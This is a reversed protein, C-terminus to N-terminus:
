GLSSLAGDLGAEFLWLSPAAVARPLGDKVPFFKRGFNRRQWGEPLQFGDGRERDNSKWFDRGLKEEGPEVIGARLLQSM